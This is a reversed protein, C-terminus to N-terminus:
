RGFIEKRLIDERMAARLGKKAYVATNWDEDPDPGSKIGTFGYLKLAHIVESTVMPVVHYDGPYLQRGYLTARFLDRLGLHNELFYKSCIKFEPYALFLVGGMKLVRRFEGFLNDWHAMEIHEICHFMQIWDVSEDQFPLPAKRIDHVIDPKTSAELDINIFGELATEGSGFNLKVM